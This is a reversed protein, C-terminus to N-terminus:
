GEVKVDNGADVGWLWSKDDTIVVNSKRSLTSMSGWHSGPTSLHSRAEVEGLDLLYHSVSIATIPLLIPNTVYRFTPPALAFFLINMLSIHSAGYFALRALGAGRVSPTSNRRVFGSVKYLTLILVVVSFAALASLSLRLGLPSILIQPVQRHLQESTNQNTDLPRATCSDFATELVDFGVVALGLLGLAVLIFYIQSIMVVPIAPDSDPELYRPASPLQEGIIAARALITLADTVLLSVHLNPLMLHYVLGVLPLYRTAFYLVTAFRIKQRWMFEIERSIGLVYDYVFLATM